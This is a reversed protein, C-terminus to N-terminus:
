PTVPKRAKRRVEACIARESRPEKWEADATATASIVLGRRSRVRVTVDDCDKLASQMADYSEWETAWFKGIKQLCAWERLGAPADEPTIRRGSRTLAVCVLHGRAAISRRVHMTVTAKRVITEAVKFQGLPDRGTLAVDARYEEWWKNTDRIIRRAEAASCPEHNGDTDCTTYSSRKAKPYVWLHELTWGDPHDEDRNPFSTAIYVYPM